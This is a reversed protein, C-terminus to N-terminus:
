NVYKKCETNFKVIDLKKHWDSMYSNTCLFQINSGTNFLRTKIERYNILLMIFFIAFCFIAKNKLISIQSVLAMILFFESFIIYQENRYRFSSIISIIYFFLLCITVNNKSARSQKKLIFLLAINLYFLFSESNLKILIEKIPFIIAIWAMSIFRQISTQLGFSERIENNAWALMLMPSHLMSFLEGNYGYVLTFVVFVIILSIINTRNFIIINKYINGGNSWTYFYVLGNFILVYFFQFLISLGKALSCFFIIAILISHLAKKQLDKDYYIKENKGKDNLYLHIMWFVYFPIYLILQIKNLLSLNFFILAAYLFFIAGKERKLAHARYLLYMAVYLILCAIMETRLRIFHCLVSGSVLTALALYFASSNSKLIASSYLYLFFVTIGASMFSLFHATSVIDTFASYLSPNNNLDSITQIDSYGLLFKIKILTALFRITFFGPHDYYEQKYGENVLLANYALTLDQDAYQSWDRTQEGLLFLSTVVSILAIIVYIISKSSHRNINKNM